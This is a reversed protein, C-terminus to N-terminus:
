NMLIMKAVSAALIGEENKLRVFYCNVTIINIRLKITVIINNLQVLLNAM